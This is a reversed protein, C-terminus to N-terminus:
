PASEAPAVSAARCPRRRLRVRAEGALLRRRLRLRLPVARPSPRAPERRRAPARPRAAEARARPPSGRSRAELRRLRPRATRALRRAAVADRLGGVPRRHDLELRGLRLRLVLLRLELADAHAVERALVPDGHELAGALLREVVVDRHDRRRERVAREERDRRHQEDRGAEERQDRARVRDRVQHLVERVDHRRLRGREQVVAQLAEVLPGARRDRDRDDAEHERDPRHRARHRAVHGREVERVVALVPPREDLLPQGREHHRRADAPGHDQEARQQDEPGCTSPQTPFASPM